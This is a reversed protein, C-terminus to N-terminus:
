AIPASSQVDFVRWRDGARELLMQCTVFTGPSLAEIMQGGPGLKSRPSRDFIVGVKPQAVNFFNDTSVNRLSYTGGRLTAGAAYGAHVLAITDACPRCTPSSAAELATTDGASVAYNLSDFWHTVFALAGERTNPVAAPPLLPATARNSSGGPTREGTPASGAGNRGDGAAPMGLTVILVAGAVLAAAVAALVIRLKKPDAAPGRQRTSAPGDPEAHAPEHAPELHSLRRRTPEASRAQDADSPVPGAHSAAPHTPGSYLPASSTPAAVPMRREIPPMPAPRVPDANPDLEIAPLVRRLEAAVERASPRITPEARLCERLLPRLAPPVVGGIVPEGRDNWEFVADPDDLRYPTTGTLMEFLLMGLAYVDTAPVPPGGRVVEPSPYEAYEYRIAGDRFGRALRGVRCDTLRVQGADAEIIVNAPKVDCHVVGSDHAAALAEAVAAAVETAEAPALPGSRALRTRLDTGDVLEMVLAVIRDEAVLDRVRVYSLHLFATLVHRERQFRDVTHPDASLYPDLLKVALWERTGRERARWVEGTPGSGILATLEYREALLQAM